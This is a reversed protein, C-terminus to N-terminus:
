FNYISEDRINRIIWQQQAKVKKYTVKLVPDKLRTKDYKFKKIYSATLLAKSNYKNRLYAADTEDGLYVPDM